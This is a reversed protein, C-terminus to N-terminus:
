KTNKLREIEEETIRVAKDIKVVKVLGKNRWNNFTTRTIKFIECFEEITKM